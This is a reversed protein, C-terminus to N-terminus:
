SVSTVSRLCSKDSGCIKFIVPGSEWDRWPQVQKWGLGDDPMLIWLSQLFLSLAAGEIGCVLCEVVLSSSTLEYLFESYALLCEMIAGPCLLFVPPCPLFFFVLALLFRCEKDVSVVDVCCLALGGELSRRDERGFLSVCVALRFSLFGKLRNLLRREM